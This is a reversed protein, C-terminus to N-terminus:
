GKWNYRDEYADFYDDCQLGLERAQQVVFQQEDPTLLLEGKRALYFNKRGFYSILQWRFTSAVGVSLLNLTQTFGKAYHVKESSCYYECSEGSIAALKNPTLTPLFAYEVPANELAIHRLCTSTKSCSDSACMGFGYPVQSFDITEM